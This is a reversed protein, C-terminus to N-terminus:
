SSKKSPEEPQVAATAIGLSPSTPEASFPFATVIRTLRCCLPSLISSIPEIGHCYVTPEKALTSCTGTRLFAVNKNICAPILVSVKYGKPSKANATSETASSACSRSRSRGCRLTCKTM